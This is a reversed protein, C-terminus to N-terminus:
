NSNLLKKRYIAFSKNWTGVFPIWMAREKPTRPYFRGSEIQAILSRSVGLKRALAEQTLKAKKRRLAMRKGFRLSKETIRSHHKRIKM